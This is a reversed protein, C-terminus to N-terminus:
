ATLASVVACSGTTLLSRQPSTLSSPFCKQFYLGVHTLPSHHIVGSRNAISCLFSESLYSFLFASSDAALCARPVLNRHPSVRPSPCRKQCYAGLQESPWRHNAGSFNAMSFALRSCLFIFFLILSASFLFVILFLSRWPSTRSSPFINQCYLASQLAPSHQTVGSSNALRLCPLFALLRLRRAVSESHTSM